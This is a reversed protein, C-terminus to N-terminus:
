LICKSFISLSDAWFQQWVEFVVQNVDTTRNALIYGFVWAGRRLVQTTVEGYNGGLVWWLASNKLITWVARVKYTNKSNGFVLGVSYLWQCLRVGTHGGFDM